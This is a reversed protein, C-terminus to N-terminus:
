ALFLIEELLGDDWAWSSNSGQEEFLIDETPDFYEVDSRIEARGIEDTLNLTNTEAEISMLDDILLDYDKWFLRKLISERDNLAESFYSPNVSGINHIYLNLTDNSWVVVWSLFHHYKLLNASVSETLDFGLRIVVDLPEADQYDPIPIILDQYKLDLASWRPFARSRKEPLMYQLGSTFHQPKM